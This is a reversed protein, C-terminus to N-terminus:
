ILAPGFITNYTNLKTKETENFIIVSHCFNSYIQYVETTGYYNIKKFDILFIFPLIVGPRTVLHTTM